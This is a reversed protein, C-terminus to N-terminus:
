IALGNSVSRSERSSKWIPNALGVSASASDLMKKMKSFSLRSIRPSGTKPYARRKFEESRLAYKGTEFTSEAYNSVVDAFVGETKTLDSERGCFEYKIKQMFVGKKAELRLSCGYVRSLDGLIGVADLGRLCVIENELRGRGMRM